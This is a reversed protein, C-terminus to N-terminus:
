SRWGRSGHRGVPTSEVPRHDRTSRRPDRVPLESRRSRGILASPDRTADATAIRSRDVDQEGDGAAVELGDPDGTADGTPVAAAAM